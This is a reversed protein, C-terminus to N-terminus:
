RRAQLDFGVAFEINIKNQISHLWKEKRDASSGNADFVEPAPSLVSFSLKM